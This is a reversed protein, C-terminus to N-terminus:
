LHRDGSVHFLPECKGLKRNGSWHLSRRYRLRQRSFIYQRGRLGAGALRQREQNRHDFAHQLFLSRADRGEHQDGRAFQGHLNHLLVVRQAALQKAGRRQDNATQGFTQLEGRQAFARAQYDRSGSTQFIEERALKNVEAIEAHQDEIFRIAHEVHSKKRGNASDCRDQRFIPLRHAKGGRQFSGDHMEHLVVHLIRHTECEPGDQLRGFIDAHLSEFNGRIAFQRQQMTQEVLFSATAEDERAGLASALAQGNSKAAITEGGGHNMAPARLRLPGRSKRSELLSTIADQHRGVQSRAANM